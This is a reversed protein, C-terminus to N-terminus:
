RTRAFQRYHVYAPLLSLASLVHWAAHGQLFHDAPDCWVRTVDLLSCVIAAAMLGLAAFFGGLGYRERARRRCLGETIVTAVILVFVIGQIPAGVRVIGATLVTLGLATGVYVRPLARETLWGLRVVNLGLLLCCFLYMGLFDFVQTLWVNSAHYVFSCAGRLAALPAFWRMLGTMGSATKGRGMILIVLAVVVFAVNSWANAPENVWACLRQECWKVNAPGYEALAHWPCGPTM